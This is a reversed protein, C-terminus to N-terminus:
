TLIGNNGFTNVIGQLIELISDIELPKIFEKNSNEQLSDKIIAVKRMDLQKDKVMSSLEKAAERMYPQQYNILKSSATLLALQWNESRFDPRFQEYSEGYIQNIAFMDLRRKM